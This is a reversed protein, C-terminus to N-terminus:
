FPNLSGDGGSGGGGLIKSSPSIRKYRVRVLGNWMWVKEVHYGASTICDPIEYGLDFTSDPINGTYGYANLDTRICTQSGALANPTTFAYFMLVSATLLGALFCLIGYTLKKRTM